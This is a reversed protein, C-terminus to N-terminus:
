NGCGAPSAEAKLLGDRKHADAFEFRTELRM